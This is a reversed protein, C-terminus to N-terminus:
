MLCCHVSNYAPGFIEKNRERESTKIKEKVEKPFYKRLFAARDADFNEIGALM